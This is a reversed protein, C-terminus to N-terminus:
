NRIGLERYHYQYLTVFGASAYLRQAAANEEMVQLYAARAEYLQAWIALTRLIAAAAGRRRYRPATAMCFLGLWKGEVVGLGVAAPEGDIRLLVFGATNAIRQLIARRADLQTEGAHEVAVYTHFWDDHYAEAVEVEFEPHHRLPPTRELISPLAATQVATPSVHQYGRGALFADLCFPAVAPSLQFRVPLGRVAYFAEVQAVQDELDANAPSDAPWVSNARRTVGESARLLWGGLPIAEAAPWARAALEDLMRIQALTPEDWAISKTM